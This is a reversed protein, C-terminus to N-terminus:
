VTPTNFKMSNVVVLWSIKGAVTLTDPAGLWGTREPNSWNVHTPPDVAPLMEAKVTPSAAM